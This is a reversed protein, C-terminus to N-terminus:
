PSIGKDVNKDDQYKYYKKNLWLKSKADQVMNREIKWDANTSQVPQKVIQGNPLRVLAYLQPKRM